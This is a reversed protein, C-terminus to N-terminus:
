FVFIRRVPRWKTKFVMMSPVFREYGNQQTAPPCTVGIQHRTNSKSTMYFNVDSAWLSVNWLSRGIFRQGRWLQKHHLRVNYRVRGGSPLLTVREFCDLKLSQLLQRCNFIPLAKFSGWNAQCILEPTECRSEWGSLSSNSKQKYLKEKERKAKPMIKLKISSKGSPRASEQVCVCDDTDDSRGPAGAGFHKAAKKKKKVGEACHMLPCIWHIDVLKHLEASLSNLTLRLEAEEPSDSQPPASPSAHHTMSRIAFLHRCRAALSSVLHQGDLLM